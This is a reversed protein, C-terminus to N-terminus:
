SLIVVDHTPILNLHEFSILLPLKQNKANIHYFL